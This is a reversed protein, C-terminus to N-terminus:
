ARIYVFLTGPVSLTPLRFHGAPTGAQNFADGVKAYLAPYTAKNVDAGNCRLWGAYAKNVPKLLIDGAKWAIAYLAAGADSYRKTAAHQASSPDAALTINATLSGGSAGLADTLGYGAATIPAGSTIKSWSFNPIDATVLTMGATVRGKSDVAVRPYVGPFNFQYQTTMVGDSDVQVDVSRSNISMQVAAYPAKGTTVNTAKFTNTQEDAYRKPAAQMPQEPMVGLIVEGHVTGGPMSVDASYGGGPILTKFKM